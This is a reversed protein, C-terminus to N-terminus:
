PKKAEITMFPKGAPFFTCLMRAIWTRSRGRHLVGTVEFGVQELFHKVEFLTYERVHGMHGITRLKEYSPYPMAACSSAKSHMILRGIGQFSRLNPTSLVMTGGPKLVRLVQEMTFIPDIRLHEFLENFLVVDFQNDQFPLPETEVNCKHVTLQHQSIAKEFREPAIDIGEVSFGNRQLALTLIPPISGVELIRHDPKLLRMCEDVDSALRRRHGRSYNQLWASLVNDEVHIDAIARDISEVSQRTPQRPETRSQM